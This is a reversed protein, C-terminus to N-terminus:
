RNKREEKSKCDICLYATPLAELRAEPIEKGCLLCVGFRGQKIRDLALNINRLREADQAGLTELMRGDIVDSAVDIVDGTEVTEVIKKMDENQAALSDLLTNRQDILVKEMKEIFAKDM